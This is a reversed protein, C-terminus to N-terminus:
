SQIESTHEESRSAVCASQVAPALTKICVTNASAPTAEQSEHLNLHASNKDIGVSRQRINELPLVLGAIGGHADVAIGVDRRIMDGSQEIAGLDDDDIVRMQRGVDRPAAVAEFVHHEQAGACAAVHIRFFEAFEADLDM